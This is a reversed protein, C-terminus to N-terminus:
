MFEPFNEFSSHFEIYKFVQLFPHNPWKKTFLKIRITNFGYNSERELMGDEFYAIVTLDHENDSLTKCERIVRSDNDFSNVVIHVVKNNM